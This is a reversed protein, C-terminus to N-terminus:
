EKVWDAIRDALKALTSQAGSRIVGPATNCELIYPFRVRPDAHIILDVAAFDLGVAKVAEVAEDIATHDQINKIDEGTVRVFEFGNRFNRGIHRYEEPRTMVKEYTDLHEGRFVWVRLEREVPIYESFWDWGAEIRWSIEEEQFVPVIDTGGHGYTKRALLPFTLEDPLLINNAQDAQVDKATFWPVVPVGADEMLRMREIKNLACKTNLAPLPGKYPMGYCIIKDHPPGIVGRDELYEKLLAGTEEAAGAILLEAKNSM